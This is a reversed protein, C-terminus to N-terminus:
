FGNKNVYFTADNTKYFFLEKKQEQPFAELSIADIGGAAVLEGEFYLRNVQIPVKLTDTNRLVYEEKFTYDVFTEDTQLHLTNIEPQYVCDTFTNLDANIKLKFFDLQTSKELQVDVFKLQKQVLTLVSFSIGVVIATIAMVVLLEALTFSKVKM